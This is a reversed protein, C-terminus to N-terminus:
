GHAALNARSLSAHRLTTFASSEKIAFGQSIGSLGGDSSATARSAWGLSSRNVLHCASLATAQQTKPRGTMCQLMVSWLQECLAAGLIAFRVGTERVSGPRETIFM